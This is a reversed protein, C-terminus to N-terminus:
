KASPPKENPHSPDNNFLQEALGVGTAGTLRGWFIKAAAVQAPGFATLSNFAEFPAFPIGHLRGTAGHGLAYAVVEEPYRAIAGLSNTASLNKFTPFYRSVLAHFGEHFGTDFRAFINNGIDYNTVSSNYGQRIGIKNLWTGVRTPYAGLSGTIVEEGGQDAGYRLWQSFRGSGPISPFTGFGPSTAYNTLARLTTGIAGGAVFDITVTRGSVPNVYEPFLSNFGGRLVAGSVVSSTGYLVFSQSATLAAGTGSAFIGTGGAALVAEGGVIAVAGIAAGGFVNGFVRLSGQWGEYRSPHHYADYVSYGAGAVAGGIVFAAIIFPIIEGNPDINDIPNQAAYVYLSSSDEYGKPDGSLFVGNVPNMLRRKSLYFGTNSLYRQGGFVPETGFASAPIVSGANDFVQPLGFSKYRYTELLDGNTDMLGILNFRSDFLTYHTGLNSHYAIPVGTVPHMSIQRSAVGNENEQGIFGGLYNFSKAPKGAEKLVIPRGFADYFIETVINVGAKITVVRGLADTEYDFIGDSKLTGETHHTYANTGDHQIKHGPLFLYNKDPNGTESYETRADSTNYAFKEAHAAALAATKVQNIANDHEAQTSAAPIVVSFSNKANLLRYKHDFEFYSTKPNQGILAEVQKTDAKNYRYKINENTGSPSQVNIETLRKREDYANEITVGGQYSAEGLANPGSPKFTSIQNSGSGLTGNVTEEIKSLIGTLDHYLKETRGDPWIKEVEGSADNYMCAITNGMTTESLLRSQSDYERSVTNTGAKATMVRDLGDYSFAHTEMKKVPVPFATNNINLIRNAADYTYEFVVGSGLQERTIQNFGNFTKISSFGNPYDIRYNRGVADFSYNSVQGTPDIYSTVRSMNDIVWRHTINLGGPDHIEQIKNNFTNYFTEKVIGLYDTQKVLLNRDDYESTIKAGDPEILEIRRNREDFKFKKIIISMAGDPEKHHSNTQILNGNNDYTHRRENGSPDTEIIM